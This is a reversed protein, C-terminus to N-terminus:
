GHRKPPIEAPRPPQLLPRPGRDDDRAARRNGPSVPRVRSRVRRPDRARGGRGIDSADAAFRGLHQAPSRGPIWADLDFAPRGREAIKSTSHRIFAAQADDRSMGHGDDRVRVLSKGGGILDVAIEGAGADIANEVLEKVVSVPREIVEGAAIKQAIDPRLVHIRNMFGRKGGRDRGDNRSRGRSPDPGHGNRGGPSACRPVRVDIASATLVAAGDGRRSIVVAEETRGEQGKRFRLNRAKAFERLSDARETRTRDDVGPRDASPTGPGPPIPFSM